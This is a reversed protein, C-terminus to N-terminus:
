VIGSKKLEKIRADRQKKRMKLDSKLESSKKNIKIDTMVDNYLIKYAPEREVNEDLCNLNMCSMAIGM